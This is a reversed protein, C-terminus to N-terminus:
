FDRFLKTVIELTSVCAVGETGPEAEDEVGQNSRCQCSESFKKRCKRDVHLLNLYTGKFYLFCPHRLSRGASLERFKMKFPGPVFLLLFFARKGLECVAMDM